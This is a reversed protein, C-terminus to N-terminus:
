RSADGAHTVTAGVEEVSGAAEIGITYPYSVDSPVFYSDHIGVGIARVRVLLEDPAIQPMPVDQLAIDTPEPSQKVFARM